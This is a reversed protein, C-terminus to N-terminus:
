AGGPAWCRPEGTKECQHCRLTRKQPDASPLENWLPIDARTKPLNVHSIVSETLAQIFGPHSNIGKCVRFHEIGRALEQERIQVGLEVLTEIHDTVFSIPQVLLAKHGARALENVKDVTSPTMWESRGVKSQFSIHFALDHGRLAMVEQISAHILCCYPDLRERLEVMPTGHASFLLQVQSRIDAPFELLTEDIRDNIARIYGPHSAYEFVSVTPWAPIEGSQELMWWYVLSSGTSTKSYHPYLPLLVVKTAGFQQMDAVAQESDPPAYRMATFVKFALENTAGFDVNLQSELAQGQVETLPTIPSGGGMMAYDRALKQSRKNAIYRSLWHRWIGRLPIDIIVPDMFLNYLFPAIEEEKGPGGLNFLVVAVRDGAVLDLPGSPFFNGEVVRKDFKYQKLFKRPTM